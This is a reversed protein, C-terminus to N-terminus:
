PVGSEGDRLSRAGLATRRVNQGDASWEVLPTPVGNLGHLRAAFMLDTIWPRGEARQFSHYATNLKQPADTLAALVREESFGLGNTTSPLECLHIRLGERLLPLSPDELDQGALAAVARPDPACIADWVTGGPHLLSWMGAM